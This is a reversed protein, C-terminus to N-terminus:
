RPAGTVWRRDVFKATARALVAGDQRVEGSVHHITWDSKELRATVEVHHDLRVTGLFRVSLEVTVATVGRAFLCNTMAADLLASTVGGHLAGDYGQYARACPFTAVVSGDEQVCFELGLGTPNESGCLLCRAHEAARRADLIDQSAAVEGPASSPDPVVM